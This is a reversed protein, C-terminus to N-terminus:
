ATRMPGSYTKSIFQVFREWGFNERAYAQAARGLAQALNPSACAARLGRAVGEASPECLFARSGDLIPEHAHGRTAIIPKGAAMYDFLKLPVNEADVRPLILYDALKLYVPIEERPRRPVLYVSEDGSIKRQKISQALEQETAGVCVLALQPNNQRARRFAELLLDIGQYSAFNGSYLVVRQQQDLGLDFRLARARPGDSSAAQAPYRWESYSVGPAQRQVYDGLGGSCIVQNARRLVRREIATVAQQAIGSRFLINRKLEVPIASAMDYIFPTSVRPCLLSAM